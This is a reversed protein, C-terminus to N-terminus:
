KAYKNSNKDNKKKYILINMLNYAFKYTSIIVCKYLNNSMPLGLQNLRKFKFFYIPECKLVNRM